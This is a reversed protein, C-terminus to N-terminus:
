WATYINTRRGGKSLVRHTNTPLYSTTTRRNRRSPRREGNTIGALFSDGQPSNVSNRQFHNDIPHNRVPDTDGYRESCRRINNSGSVNGDKLERKRGRNQDKACSSEARSTITLERSMGDPRDRHASSFPAGSAQPHGRASAIDDTITSLNRENRPTHMGLPIGLNQAYPAYEERYSRRNEYSPAFVFGFIQLVAYPRM